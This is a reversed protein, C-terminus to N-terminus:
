DRGGRGRAGVGGSFAGGVRCRKKENEADRRREAGMKGRVCSARGVEKEGCHLYHAGIGRRSAGCERGM